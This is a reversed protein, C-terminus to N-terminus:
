ILNWPSLFIPRPDWISAQCWSPSASQWDYHSKSKSRLGGGYGQSDYSSVSLSGLARPYIQAERNRPSIFVPVQCVLNPSDWSNPFYFIAKLGAPSLGSRSKTPSSWRCCYIVFGDERWLPYYLIVFGCSDFPFKLSFFFHDRTGSPQRVGLRVSRSVTPRLKVEVEATLLTLPQHTITVLRTIIGSSCNSLQSVTM